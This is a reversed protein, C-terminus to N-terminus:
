CNEKMGPNTSVGACGVRALAFTRAGRLGWLGGARLVTVGRGLIGSTRLGRVSGGTVAEVVPVARGGGM